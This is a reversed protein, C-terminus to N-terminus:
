QPWARVLAGHRARCEAAAAERQLMTEVMAGITVGEGQLWAPGAWCPAALEAPPPSSPVRIPAPTGCSILCLPLCLFILWRCPAAPPAPFRASYNM